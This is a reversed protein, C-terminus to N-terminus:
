TDLRSELGPEGQRRGRRIFHDLLTDESLLILYCRLQFLYIILIIGHQSIQETKIIRGTIRNQINFAKITWSLKRSIKREYRILEDDHLFYKGLDALMAIGSLMQGTPLTGHQGSELFRRLLNLILILERQSREIEEVIRNM